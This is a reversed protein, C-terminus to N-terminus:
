SEKKTTPYWDKPQAPLRFNPPEPTKVAVKEAPGGGTKVVASATLVSASDDKVVEPNRAKFLIIADKIDEAIDEPTEKGRRSTFYKTIESWNAKVEPDATAERIAKKENANYFDAKTLFESSEKPKTDVAPTEVKAEPAKAKRRAIARDRKANNRAGEDQIDDLPDGGQADAEEPKAVLESADVGGGTSDGGPNQDDM